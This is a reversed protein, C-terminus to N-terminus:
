KQWIITGLTYHVFIKINLFFLRWEWSKLNKYKKYIWLKPTFELDKVENCVNSQMWLLVKSQKKLILIISIWINPCNILFMKVKTKFDICSNLKLGLQSKSLIVTYHPKITTKPLHHKTNKIRGTCVKSLSFFQLSM